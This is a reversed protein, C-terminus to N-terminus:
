IAQQGNGTAWENKMEDLLETSEESFNNVFNLPNQIEHAIDATLEGLSAMKESQILQAQTAKLNDLTKVFSATHRKVEEQLIKQQNIAQEKKEESLQIVRN